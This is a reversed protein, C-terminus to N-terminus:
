GAVNAGGYICAVRIGCAKAFSKSEKYIQKALERTPAMVLGIMGEGEELPRQDRIHRIMPLVYALTKGSGTEAIGIVDRGSMICPIAQCQIPFPKAFNKKEIVEIVGDPLGCQYWNMIPKPCKLGRVKIDGNNKRFMAVEKDTM